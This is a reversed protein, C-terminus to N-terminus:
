VPFTKPFPLFPLHNVHAENHLTLSHYRKRWNDGIRTHADILLTDVGLATLRAAIGLGAQGAGVVVVTPERGDYADRRNRKDLWNEGGFDRSFADAALSQGDTIGHKSLDELTTSVIWAADPLDRGEGARMRVVGNGVGHCTEFAFIAEIVPEGGRVVRRPAVRGVPLHFNRPEIDRARDAWRAGISGAGSTTTIDWGFAIVDRWHSGADFLAAIAEADANRSAREIKELWASVCGAVGADVDDSLTDLPM